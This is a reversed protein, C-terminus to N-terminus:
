TARRREMEQKGQHPRYKSRARPSKKLAVFLTAPREDILYVPVAYPASIGALLDMADLKIQGTRMETPWVEAELGHVWWANEARVSVRVASEAKRGTRSEFTAERLQALEHYDLDDAVHLKRPKVKRRRQAKKGM